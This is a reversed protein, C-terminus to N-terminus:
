KKTRFLTIFQKTKLYLKFITPQHILNLLTKKILDLSAGNSDAIQFIEQKTISTIFKANTLNEKLSIDTDSKLTIEAIKLAENTVAEISFNNCIYNNGNEGLEIKFNPNREIKLIKKIFEVKSNVVFGGKSNGILELQTNDKLPTSLTIVPTKFFLSEALVMGFSEGIQAAHIFIDFSKYLSALEQDSNSIPLKIVHNKVNDPYKQLLKDLNSPLGVLVLYYNPAIKLLDSLIDFIIKDWKGDFPQGIRGLIFASEPLDYKKKDINLNRSLSVIDIPYPLISGIQESKTNRTWQEWKWLCWKSLQLHVDILKADVSYDPRAFVNTELVRNQDTKLFKIVKTTQSCASGSRHIHIINPQWIQIELLVKNLNTTGDFIEIGYQTLYNARIGLGKLVLAKVDHGHKQYGVSYNQAARETGGIGLNDVITLIKM